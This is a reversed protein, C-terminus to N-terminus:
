RWQMKIMPNNHLALPNISQLGTNDPNEPFYFGIPHTNIIHDSLNQTRGWPSAQWAGRHM